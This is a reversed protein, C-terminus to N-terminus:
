RNRAIQDYAEALRQKHEARESTSPQWKKPKVRENGLEELGHAKGIKIMRTRSDVYEGTVPHWTLPITDTLIQTTVQPSYEDAPILKFEGDIMKAVWRTRAM